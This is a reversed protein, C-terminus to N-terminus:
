WGIRSEVTVQVELRRIDSGDCRPGNRITFVWLRLKWIGNVFWGMARFSRLRGGGDEGGLVGIGKKWRRVRRLVVLRAPQSRKEM